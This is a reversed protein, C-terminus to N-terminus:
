RRWSTCRCSAATTVGSVGTARSGDSSRGDACTDGVCHASSARAPSWAVGRPRATCSPRLTKPVVMSAYRSTSSPSSTTGPRGAAGASPCDGGVGTARM